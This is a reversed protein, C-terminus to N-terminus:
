ELSDAGKDHGPADDPRKGYLIRPAVLTGAAAGVMCIAALTERTEGSLIDDATKLRWISFVCSALVLIGPLVAAGAPRVARPHRALCPMALAFAVGGILGAVLGAAGGVVGGCFAYIVSWFLYPLRLLAGFIAGGILGALCGYGTGRLVISTRLPVTRGARHADVDDPAGSM